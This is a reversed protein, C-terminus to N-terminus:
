VVRVWVVLGPPPEGLRVQSAGELVATLRGDDGGIDTNWRGTIGGTPATAGLPAVDRNLRAQATETGVPDIQVLQMDRVGRHWDALSKLGQVTQHLRSLNALD